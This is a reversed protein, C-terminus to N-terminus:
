FLDVVAEGCGPAAERLAAGPAPPSAPFHRAPWLSMLLVDPLSGVLVGFM